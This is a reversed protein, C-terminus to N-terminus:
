EIVIQLKLGSPLDDSYNPDASYRWHRHPGNDNEWLEAENEYDSSRQAAPMFRAGDDLRVLPPDDYPLRHGM